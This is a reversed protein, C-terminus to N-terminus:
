KEPKSLQPHFISHLQNNIEPNFIFKLFLKLALFAIKKLFDVHFLLPHGM